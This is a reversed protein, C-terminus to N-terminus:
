ELLKQYTIKNEVPMVLVRNMIVAQQRLFESLRYNNQKDWNNRAQILLPTNNNDKCKRGYTKQSLGYGASNLCLWEQMLVELSANCYPCSNTKVSGRGRQRKMIWEELTRVHMHLLVATKAEPPFTFHYTGRKGSDPGIAYTGRTHNSYHPDIFNITRSVRAITKVHAEPKGTYFGTRDLLTQDLIGNEWRWLRGMANVYQWNLRVGAIHPEDLYRKMFAPICGDIYPAIYEDVDIAALWIVKNKKARFLADTFAEAQMGIGTISMLDVLGEDVFPKVAEHLNDTSENDYIVVHDVGLLFHWVLWEILTQADNKVQTTIWISNKNVKSKPCRVKLQDKLISMSVKSVAHTKCIFSNQRASIQNSAKYRETLCHTDAKNGCAVRDEPHSLAFCLLDLPSIAESASRESRLALFSVFLLLIVFHNM